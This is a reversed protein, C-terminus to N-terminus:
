NSLILRSVEAIRRLSLVAERIHMQVYNLQRGQPILRRVHRPDAYLLFFDIDGYGQRHLLHAAAGGMVVLEIGARRNKWPFDEPFWPYAGAFRCPRECGNVLAPSHLSASPGPRILSCMRHREDGVGLRYPWNRRQAALACAVRVPM